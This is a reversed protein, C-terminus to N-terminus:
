KRFHSVAERRAITFLWNVFPRDPDFDRLHAHAKIFTVQTLDEADQSQRTLRHLFHYVRKGYLGILAEFAAADGAVSRRVLRVEDASAASIGPDVPLPRSLLARQIM